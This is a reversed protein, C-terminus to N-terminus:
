GEGRKFELVDGDPVVGMGAAQVASLMDAESVQRYKRLATQVSHGLMAAAVEPAVGSRYITDVALRRLGHPSFQEVGALDCATKLRANLNSRVSRPGTGHVTNREHPWTHLERLARPHLVAVRPGTKGDLQLAGTVLNVREWTLDAIEGRRAGTAYLLFVVRHVWPTRNPRKLVELVSLVEATTPTRRSYVSDTVAVEIRPAPRGPAADMGQAWRWAQRLCRLDERITSQARGKDRQEQVYADLHHTYLRELAIFQLSSTAVAKAHNKRASKSRESISRKIESAIWCDMLDDVTSIDGRQVRRAGGALRTVIHGAEERTGWGSWVAQRKGKGMPRDARWRWRGDSRPGSHVRVRIRDVSFPKPRRSSM